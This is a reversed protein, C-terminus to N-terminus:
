KFKPLTPPGVFGIAETTEGTVSMEEKGVGIFFGADKILIFSKPVRELRLASETFSGLPFDSVIGEGGEDLTIPGRIAPDGTGRGGGSAIPGRTPYLM